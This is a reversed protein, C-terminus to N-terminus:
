GGSAGPGGDSYCRTVASRTSGPPPHVVAPADGSRRLCSVGRGCVTLSLKKYKVSMARVVTDASGHQM